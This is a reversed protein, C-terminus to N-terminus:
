TLLAALNKFRIIEVVFVGIEIKLHVNLRMLIVGVVWEGTDLKKKWNFLELWLLKKVVLKCISLLYEFLLM